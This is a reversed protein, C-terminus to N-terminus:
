VSQTTRGYEKTHGCFLCEFFEVSEGYGTDASVLEMEKFHCKPINEQSM